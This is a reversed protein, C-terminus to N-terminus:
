QNKQTAKKKYGSVAYFIDLIRPIMSVDVLEEIKEKEVKRGFALYLIEMMADYPEDTFADDFDINVGNKQARTIKKMDPALLNVIIAESNFKSTYHRITNKDKILAPFIEYEKGDRCQIFNDQEMVNEM